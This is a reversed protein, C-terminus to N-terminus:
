SSNRQKGLQKDRRINSFGFFLLGAGMLCSFIGVVMWIEKMKEYHVALHAIRQSEMLLDHSHIALERSNPEDSLIEQAIKNINCQEGQKVCSNYLDIRSNVVRAYEGYAFASKEVQVIADIRKTEAEDYSTWPVNFGYALLSSGVVVMSEYIFKM